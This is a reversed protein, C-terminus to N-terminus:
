WERRGGKIKRRRKKRARYVECALVLHM